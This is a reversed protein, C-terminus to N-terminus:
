LELVSDVWSSASAQLCSKLVVQVLEMSIEAGEVYMCAWGKGVGNCLTPASEDECGDRVEALIEVVLLIEM